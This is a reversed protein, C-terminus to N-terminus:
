NSDRSQYAKMLAAAATTAQDAYHPDVPMVRSKPTYHGIQRQEIDPYAEILEAMCERCVHRMAILETDDEGGEIWCPRLCKDCDLMLVPMVTPTRNELREVVVSQEFSSV